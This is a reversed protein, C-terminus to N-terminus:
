RVAPDTIIHRLLEWAGTHATNKEPHQGKLAKPPSSFMIVVSAGIACSGGILFCWIYTDSVFYIWMSGLISGLHWTTFGDKNMVHRASSRADAVIHSSKMISPSLSASLDSPMPSPMASSATSSSVKADAMSSRSVSIDNSSLAPQDSYMVSERHQGIFATTAVDNRRDDQGASSPEATAGSSNHVLDSVWSQMLASNAGCIGM